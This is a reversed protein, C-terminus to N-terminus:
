WDAIFGQPWRVRGLRVGMGADGEGETDGLLVLVTGGAAPAASLLRGAGLGTLMPLPSSAAASFIAAKQLSRLGLNKVDLIGDSYGVILWEGAGSRSSAMRMAAPERGPLKAITWLPAWSGLDPEVRGRRMIKTTGDQGSHATLLGGRHAGFWSGSKPPATAFQTAPGAARDVLPQSEGSACDVVSTQIPGRSLVLSRCPQGEALDGCDLAVDIISGSVNCPVHELIQADVAGIGDFNRLKFLTFENALLCQGGDGASGPGACALAFPVFDDDPWLVEVAEFDWSGGSPLGRLNRGHSRPLDRNAQYGHDILSQSSEVVLWALMSLWTATVITAGLCAIRGSQSVNESQVEVTGRRQVAEDQCDFNSPKSQTASRLKFHGLINTMAQCVFSLCLFVDDWRNSNDSRIGLVSCCIASFALAMGIKGWGSSGKNFYAWTLVADILAITLPVVISAFGCGAYYQAAAYLGYGQLLYHLGMAGFLMCLEELQEFSDAHQKFLQMHQDQVDCAQGVVEDLSSVSEQSSKSESNRLRSLGPVRLMTNLGQQEFAEVTEVAANEDLERILEQIPLRVKRTLLSRQWGVALHNAGVACLVALVLYVLSSTICATYNAVLFNSCGVPLHGEIFCEAMMGLLLTVIIIYNNQRTINSGVTDRIDERFMDYQSLLVQQKQIRRAQKVQVDNMWAERNYSFLNTAAAMSAGLGLAEM